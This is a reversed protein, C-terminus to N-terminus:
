LLGKMQVAIQGKLFWEVRQEEEGKMQERASKCVRPPGRPLLSTSQTVQDLQRDLSSKMTHSMAPLTTRVRTSSPLRLLTRPRKALDLSVPLLTNPCCSVLQDFGPGM